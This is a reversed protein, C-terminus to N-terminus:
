GGVLDKAGQGLQSRPLSHVKQRPGGPAQRAPKNVDTRCSTGPAAGVFRSYVLGMAMAHKVDDLVTTVAGHLEYWSETRLEELVRTTLTINREVRGALKALQWQVALLALAPGVATLVGVAGVAGVPAWRVQAIIKGGVQLGGLHWGAQALPTAGARLSALTQPALRVLGQVQQLGSLGQMAVNGFGLAQATLHGADGHELHLYPVALLEINPLKVDGLVLFTGEDDVPVLTTRVRGPQANVEAAQLEPV